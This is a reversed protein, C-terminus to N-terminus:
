YSIVQIQDEDGVIVKTKRSFKTFLGTGVVGPIGDLERERLSPDSITGFNCDLVLNGNDTIVPGDKGGGSERLQATGGMRGASRAVHAWGFPVVEVPIPLTLHESIKEPTVIIILEQAADAICKERVMAAGRGKILFGNSDVQDAGDIAIDLADVEELGVLPIHYAHARLMTQLSTSVGRISLGGDIRSSLRELAFSVTSGTGLGVVM